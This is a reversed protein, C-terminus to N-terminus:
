GQKNASGKLPTELHRGIERKLDDKLSHSAVLIAPAKLFDLVRFADVTPRVLIEPRDNKLKAAVIAAQMIQLTGFMTDFRSPSRAPPQARVGTVDVAVLVEARDRLYDFPLPNVAGGDVLLRSGMRVPRVLGPIAISGAIAPLLPGADFVAETRAAYDTAVVQLPVELAEFERPVEPPWLRELLRESDLLFPNGRVLGDASRRVRAGILAAMLSNRKRVVELAFARISRADMGGAYAAGVLAGMSAGAIAVPKVGLEDLVELVAIHALGRAGGAGLALAISKV